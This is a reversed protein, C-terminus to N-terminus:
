KVRKAAKVAQQIARYHPISRLGTIIPVRFMRMEFRGRLVAKRIMDSTRPRSKGWVSEWQHVTLWGPPVIEVDDRDLEAM